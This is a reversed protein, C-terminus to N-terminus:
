GAAAVARRGCLCLCNAELGGVWLCGQGGVLGFSYVDSAATASGGSLVEPAQLHPSPPAARKICACCANLRVICVWCARGGRTSCRCEDRKASRGVLQGALYPQHGSCQHPQGRATGGRAAQVPQLRSPIPFYPCCLHLVLDVAVILLNEICQM